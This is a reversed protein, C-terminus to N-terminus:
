RSVTKVTQQQRFEYLHVAIQLMFIHGNLLNRLLTILDSILCVTEWIIICVMYCVLRMDRGLRIKKLNWTLIRIACFFDIWKPPLEQLGSYWVFYIHCLSSLANNASSFVVSGHAGTDWSLFYFNPVFINRCTKKCLTTPVKSFRSPGSSIYLLTM